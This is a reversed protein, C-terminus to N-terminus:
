FWLTVRYSEVVKYQESFLVVSGQFDQHPTVFVSINPLGPATAGCPDRM